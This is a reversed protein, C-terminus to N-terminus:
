SAPPFESNSPRRYVYGGPQHAVQSRADVSVNVSASPKGEALLIEILRIKATDSTGEATLLEAATELAVLRLAARRTNAEDLMRKQLEAVFLRTEARQMAKHWGQPSLGAERCAATITLGKRIRLDIARRLKESMRSPRAAPLTTKGTM